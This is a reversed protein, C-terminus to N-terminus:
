KEVINSHRRQLGHAEDHKSDDRFFGIPRKAGGYMGFGSEYVKKGNEWVETKVTRGIDNKDFSLDLYMRYEKGNATGSCAASRDFAKEANELLHYYMQSFIDLPLGNMIYKSHKEAREVKDVPVEEIGKEETSFHYGKKLYGNKKLLDHRVEDGYDDLNDTVIDYPIRDILTGNADFVSTVFMKFFNVKVKAM